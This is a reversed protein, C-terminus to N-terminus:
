AEEIKRGCEPCCKWPHRDNKYLIFELSNYGCKSCAYMETPYPAIDTYFHQEFVCTEKTTESKENSM